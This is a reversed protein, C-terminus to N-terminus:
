ALEQHRIFEVKGVIHQADASMDVPRRALQPVAEARAKLAYSFSVLSM